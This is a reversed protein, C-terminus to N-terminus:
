RSALSAVADPTILQPTVRDGDRLHQIGELVLQDDPLLGDGIVYTHPLRFLPVVPRMEAVSEGNVVFVYHNEQIEFTAKQPIILADRIKTTLSVKGSAGHKLLSEPNPFRARVAITGTARNIESEVTEIRGEHSYRQNNVLILSVDRLDDDDRSAFELYEVESLNFYAFVEANNSLTTLLAGEDILSGTKNRIRNIVGDFPARITTFSLDLRAMSLASRAEEVRAELAEVMAEAKELESRSIVNGEVLKRTNALEVEAAKVEAQASKLNANAKKLEDKFAQSSISFLVQGARVFEGEDVHIHELFGSIRARIEVNQISQIDAVYERSVVTDVVTPYIVQVTEISESTESDSACGSFLFLGALSLTYIVRIYFSQSDIM